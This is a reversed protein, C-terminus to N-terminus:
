TPTLPSSVNRAACASSSLPGFGNKKKWCMCGFSVFEAGHAHPCSQPEDM